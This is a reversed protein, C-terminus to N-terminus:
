KRATADAAHAHGRHRRSTARVRSPGTTRTLLRHHLSPRATNVIAPDASRTGDGGPVVLTDPAQVAFLGPGPGSRPWEVGAGARRWPERDDGQVRVPRRSAPYSAFVELPGTVDLSRVGEFLVILVSRDPVCGAERCAAIAAVDYM